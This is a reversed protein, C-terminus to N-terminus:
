LHEDLMAKMMSKMEAQNRSSSFSGRLLLYSGLLVLLAAARDMRRQEGPDSQRTIQQVKKPIRGGKCAERLKNM